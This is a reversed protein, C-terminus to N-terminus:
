KNHKSNYKDVAEIYLSEINNAYCIKSYNEVSKRANIKIKKLVDPHCSIEDMKTALDDEGDFFIGNYYDIVVDDLCEDRQVLLPCESALAEIYTLGQTETVSANVFVDCSHYVIPIDNWEIFGTFKVKDLIGLEKALTKLNDLYPGDGVILLIAKPNKYAKKAFAKLITDISKEGSIRGLYLFIFHEKTLGISSRYAAIEEETFMKSSFHDLDIGTPVIRIDGNLQYKPASALVKKTPVIDIQAKKTIPKIFIKVALFLFSRHFYKDVALSIYRLYDEYLTHFTYVLPLHYKKAVKTGLRGMCFETQVHVIDLKYKKIEKVLKRYRFRVRYTKLSKFPPKLGKIRVVNDEEKILTKTKEFDFTFIFVEHGLKTLGEKLMSVSTVVGSINPLYPDTFIGIRM